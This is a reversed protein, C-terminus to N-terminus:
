QLSVAGEELFNVDGLLLLDLKNDSLKYATNIQFKTKIVLGMAGVFDIGIAAPTGIKLQVPPLLGQTPVVMSRVRTVNLGASQMMSEIEQAIYEQKTNGIQTDLEIELQADRYKDRFATLRRETEARLQTSLLHPQKAVISSEVRTVGKKIEGLMETQASHEGSLEKQTEHIDQKSAISPFTVVTLVTAPIGVIACCFLFRNIPGLKKFGAILGKRRDM